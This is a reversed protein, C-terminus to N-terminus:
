KGQDATFNSYYQRSSSFSSAVMLVSSTTSSHSFPSEFTSRNRAAMLSLGLRTTIVIVVEPIAQLGTELVTCIQM